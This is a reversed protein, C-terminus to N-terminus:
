NDSVIALCPRFFWEAAAEGALDALLGGLWVRQWLAQVAAIM